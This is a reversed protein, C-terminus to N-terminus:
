NRKREWFPDHTACYDQQGQARGPYSNTAKANCGPHDCCRQIVIQSIRPDQRAAQIMRMVHEDNAPEAKYWTGTGTFDAPPEVKTLKVNVPDEKLLFQHPGSRQADEDALTKKLMPRIYEAMGNTKLAAVEERTLDKNKAAWLNIVQIDTLTDVLNNVDLHPQAPQAPQVVKFSDHVPRRALVEQYQREWEAVLQEETKGTSSVFKPQTVPVVPALPVALKPQPHVFKPAPVVPAQVKRAKVNNIHDWVRQTAVAEELEEPSTFPGSMEIAIIILILLFQPLKIKLNPGM